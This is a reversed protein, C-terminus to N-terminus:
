YFFGSATGGSQNFGSGSGGSFLKGLSGMASGMGGGGGLASLGAGLISGAAGLYGADRSGQANGITSYNQQYSNAINNRYGGIQGEAQMGVSGLKGLNGMYQQFDQDALNQGYGQLAKMTAGSNLGGRAAASNQIANTGQQMQFDYGPSTRYNNLATASASQGNLGMLDGLSQFAQGGQRAYPSFAAINQNNQNEAVQIAGMAYKKPGKSPDFFSM